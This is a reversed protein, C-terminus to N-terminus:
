KGIVKDMGEGLEKDLQGHMGGNIGRGIGEDLWGGMGGDMDEGVGGGEFQGHMGGNIERGIEGDLWRSM